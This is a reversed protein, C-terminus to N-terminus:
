IAFIIIDNWNRELKVQRTQSRTGTPPLIVSAPQRTFLIFVLSSLWVNFESFSFLFYFLFSSLFTLLLLRQFMQLQKSEKYLSSILVSM